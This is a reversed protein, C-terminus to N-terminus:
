PYVRGGIVRTELGLSNFFRVAAEPPFRKLFGGVREPINYDEACIGVGTLNCRGNGTALLKKGVRAGRELVTVRRSSGAMVSFSLAAAGGGIVIIDKREVTPIAKM